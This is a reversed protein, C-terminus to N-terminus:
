KRGSGSPSQNSRSISLTGALVALSDSINEWRGQRRRFWTSIRPSCQDAHITGSSPRPWTIAALGKNQMHKGLSLIRANRLYPSSLASTTKPRQRRSPSYAMSVRTLTCCCRSVAGARSRVLPHTDIASCVFSLGSLETWRCNKPHLTDAEGSVAGRPSSWASLM